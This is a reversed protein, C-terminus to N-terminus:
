KNGLLSFETIKRYIIEAALQNARSNMHPDENSVWLLRKDLPAFVRELDIFPLQYEGAVNRIYSTAFEFPYSEQRRLDPINVLLLKIDKEACIKALEALAMRNAIFGQADPRYIARYYATLWDQQSQMMKLQKIRTVVYAPLYFHKLFPYSAQDIVPTPETDNIYYMLVVLDPNMALGKLKFLEVEMSSNYNGVGLNIVEAKEGHHALKKELQKAYTDEAAIGWGLTFSDGLFLVRKGGPPKRVSYEGDRFGLSNTSIEAGYYTGKANPRHHFPLVANPLPQKLEAAYRWMEFDYNTGHRYQFRVVGEATLFCILLALLLVSMNLLMQKM